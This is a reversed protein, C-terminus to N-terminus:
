PTVLTGLFNLTDVGVVAAIIAAIASIIAAIAAIAGWGGHSFFESVSKRYREWTTTTLLEYERVIHKIAHEETAYNNGCDLGDVLSSIRPMTQGVVYSFIAIKVGTPSVLHTSGTDSQKLTYGKYGGKSSEKM